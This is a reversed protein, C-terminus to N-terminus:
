ATQNGHWYGSRVEPLVFWVVIACNLASWLVINRDLSLPGFLSVMGVVLALELVSLTIAAIQGWQRWRLIGWACVLYVAWVIMLLYDQYSFPLHNRLAHTYHPVIEYLMGLGKIAFFVGVVWHGWNAVKSM